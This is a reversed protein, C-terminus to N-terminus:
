LGVVGRVDAVVQGRPHALGRELHALLPESEEGLHHDRMARHGLEGCGPSNSEERGSPVTAELSRTRPSPISAFFDIRSRCRKSSTSCSRLCRCTTSPVVKSNKRSGCRSTGVPACASSSSANSLLSCVRTSLGGHACASPIRWRGGQQPFPSTRSGGTGRTRM